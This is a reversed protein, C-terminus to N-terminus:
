RMAFKRGMVEKFYKDGGVGQDAMAYAIMSVNQTGSKEVIRRADKEIEGMIVTSKVGILGLGHVIMSVERTGMWGIGRERVKEELTRRMPRFFMNKKIFVRGGKARLKGLSNICLAWNVDNFHSGNDRGYEALGRWDGRSHYTLIDESMRSWFDLERNSRKVREGEGIYESLYPTPTAKYAGM